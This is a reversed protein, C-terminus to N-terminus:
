DLETGDAVRALFWPKAVGIIAQRLMVEDVAHERIYGKEEVLIDMQVWKLFEGIGRMGRKIGKERLYAWGQELREEGWWGQAV